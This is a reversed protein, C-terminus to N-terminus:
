SWSRVAFVARGTADSVFGRLDDADAGSLGGILWCGNSDPGLFSSLSGAGHPARYWTYSRLLGLRLSQLGFTNHIKSTKRIKSYEKGTCSITNHSFCGHRVMFHRQKEYLGNGCLKISNCHAQMQSTPQSLRWGQCWTRAWLIKCRM